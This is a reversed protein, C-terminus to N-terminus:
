NNQQAQVCDIALVVALALIEDGPNAIDLEYSDGWTLWEKRITVIPQGGCTISYDHEWFSGEIQWGLGEIHYRPRFFTFEQVIEAVQQGCYFVHFKPMWTWVKQQIFAVEQNTLADYLHLKKGWSFLEGEVYCRPNGQADTVTFRDRWSFVKQKMYLKSGGNNQM